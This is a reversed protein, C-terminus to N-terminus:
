DYAHKLGEGLRRLETLAPSTAPLALTRRLDELGSELLEDAWAKGREALQTERAWTEVPTPDHPLAVRALEVDPQFRGGNGHAQRQDLPELAVQGVHGLVRALEHARSTQVGLQQIPGAVIQPRRQCREANYHLLSGAPM